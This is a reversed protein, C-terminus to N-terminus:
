LFQMEVRCAIVLIPSSHPGKVAWLKRTSMGWTKLEFPLNGAWFWPKIHSEWAWALQCAPPPPLPPLERWLWQTTCICATIFVVPCPQGGLALPALIKYNKNGLLSKNADRSMHAGAEKIHPHRPGPAPHWCVASPVPLLQLINPLCHAPPLTKLFTSLYWCIM